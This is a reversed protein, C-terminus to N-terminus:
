KGLLSIEADYADGFYNAKLNHRVQRGMLDTIVQMLKQQGMPCTVHEYCESFVQVLKVKSFQFKAEKTLLDCCVQHRDRM